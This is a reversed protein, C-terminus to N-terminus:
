KFHNPRKRTVIMTQDNALSATAQVIEPDKQTCTKMNPHGTNCLLSVDLSDIYCFVEPRHLYKQVLRSTQWWVFTHPARPAAQSHPVLMQHLDITKSLM